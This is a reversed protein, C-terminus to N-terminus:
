IWFNSSEEGGSKEGGLHHLVDSGEGRSRVVFNQDIVMLIETLSSHFQLYKEKNLEHISEEMELFSTGSPVDKGYCM